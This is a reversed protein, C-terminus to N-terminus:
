MSIVAPPCRPLGSVKVPLGVWLVRREGGGLWGALPPQLANQKALWGALWGDLWGALWTSRSSRVQAAAGVAAYLLAFLHYYALKALSKLPSTAVERSNNYRDRLCFVSGVLCCAIDYESM